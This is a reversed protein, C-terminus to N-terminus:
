KVLEDGKLNKHSILRGTQSDIIFTHDIFPMSKTYMISWQGKDLSGPLSKSKADLKETGFSVNWLYERGAGTKLNVLKQKQLFDLLQATGFKGFKNDEDVQKAISGDTNYYTWKGIAVNGLHTGKTKIILTKGDYVKYSTFLSPKALKATYVYESGPTGFEEVENGNKDKYDYIGNKQGQNFKKIDFKEIQNVSVKSGNKVTNIKGPQSAQGNCSLALLITIIALSIKKM